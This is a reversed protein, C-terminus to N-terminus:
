LNRKQRSSHQSRESSFVDGSSSEPLSAKWDDIQPMLQKVVAPKEKGLDAKEYTDATIDYLESYTADRNTLLKWNKHEIAYGLPKSTVDIGVSGCEVADRCNGSPSAVTCTPDLM